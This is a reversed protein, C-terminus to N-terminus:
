SFNKSVWGSELTELEKSQGQADTTVDSEGEMRKKHLAEGTLDALSQLAELMTDRATANAADRRANQPGSMLIAQYQHGQTPEFIARVVVVEFAM